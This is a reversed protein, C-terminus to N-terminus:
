QFYTRASGFGLQFCLLTSTRWGRGGGPSEATEVAVKLSLQAILNAQRLEHMEVRVRVRKTWVKYNFNEKTEELRWIRM